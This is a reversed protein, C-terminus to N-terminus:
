CVPGLTKHVTFAANVICKGTSEEEISLPSYEAKHM